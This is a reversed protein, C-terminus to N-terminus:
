HVVAGFADRALEYVEGFDLGCDIKPDYLKFGVFMLCLLHLGSFVEGPCTKLTYTKFPNTHDIGNAGLLSIESVVAFIQERSQGAFRSLADLCFTYAEPKATTLPQAAAPPAAAAAVPVVDAQWDYWPRLKLQRAFKDVLDYEDGPAFSDM